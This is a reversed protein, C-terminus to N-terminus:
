SSSNYSLPQTTASAGPVITVTLTFTGGTATTYFPQSGNTLSGISLSSTLQSSNATLSAVSDGSVAWPNAQTGVGTVTLDGAGVISLANLASQIQSATGNYPLAATTASQGLVNSVTLTFTGGTASTWLPITGAQQPAVTLVGGVLPAAVPAVGTASM